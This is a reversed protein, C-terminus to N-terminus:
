DADRGEYFLLVFYHVFHGELVRDGLLLPEMVQAVAVQAVEVLAQFRQVVLQGTEGPGLPKPRGVGAGLCDFLAFVVQLGLQLDDELVLLQVVVLQDLAEDLLAQHAEPGLDALPQRLPSM